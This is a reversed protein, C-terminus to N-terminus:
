CQSIVESAYVNMMQFQIASYKAEMNYYTKCKCDVAGGFGDRALAEAVKVVYMTNCPNLQVTAEFRVDQRLFLQPLVVKGPGVGLLSPRSHKVPLLLVRLF